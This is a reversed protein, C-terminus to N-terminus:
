PSERPVPYGLPPVPRGNAACGAHGCEGCWGGHNCGCACPGPWTDWEPLNTLNMVERPVELYADVPSALGMHGCRWWYHLAFVRGRSFPNQGASVPCQSARRGLSWALYWLLVPPKTDAEADRVLQAPVVLASSM